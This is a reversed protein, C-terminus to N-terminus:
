VKEKGIACIVIWLLPDILDRNGTTLPYPIGALLVSSSGHHKIRVM